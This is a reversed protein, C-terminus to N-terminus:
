RGCEEIIAKMDEMHLMMDRFLALQARARVLNHEPYDIRFYKDGVLYDGLFRSALELTIVAAGVALSQREASDLVGGMESLYGETYAKFLTLDLKMKECDREDEEATCAAFRITDGFDYCALGPMCTDLDIIVLPDLTDRDFLINNTKTDNHTVRIPLEGADIQRCLTGAFDLNELIRAIEAGASAARGLPDEEVNRQFSEMRYVTDHFHPISEVLQSADFDRLQRNFKGFAKGSMRLVEAKGEATEFSVSNEIYNYLRWFEWETQSWGNEMIKEREDPSLEEINEFGGDKERLILYNNGSATHHFHLRRRRELTREKNMIHRTILDINHMMSVPERFVYWNVRQVLFQRVEKGDYLAAYYATNIHGNPILRYLILEGPIRFQRCIYALKERVPDSQM